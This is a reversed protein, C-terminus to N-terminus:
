AAMLTRKVKNFLTGSLDKVSKIIISNEIFRTVAPSGIGIGIFEVGSKTALNIVGALSQGDNPDGDTILIVVKRNSQSKVLQYCGTWVAETAPTTGGARQGFRNVHQSLKGGQPLATSVHQPGFFTVGLSVGKISELAYALALASERAVKDNGDSMSGSLDVLLHVATNIKQKEGDRLFIKTDGLSLRSLSKTNLKKGIRKPTRKVVQKAQLLGMLEKKIRNSASKANAIMM